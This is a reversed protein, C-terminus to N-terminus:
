NVYFAVIPINYQKAIQQLGSRIRKHESDASENEASIEAHISALDNIVVMPCHYIQIWIKVYYEIDNLTCRPVPQEAIDLKLFLENHGLTTNSNILGPMYKESLVELLSTFFELTYNQKEDSVFLVVGDALKDLIIEASNETINVFNNLNTKEM